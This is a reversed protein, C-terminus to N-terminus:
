KDEFIKIDKIEDPLYEIKEDKHNHPYKYGKGWGLNELGKLVPNRLHLPVPLEGFKEVLKIANEM